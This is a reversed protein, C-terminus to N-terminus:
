MICSLVLLLLICLTDFISSHKQCATAKKFVAAVLLYVLFVLYFWESGLILKM